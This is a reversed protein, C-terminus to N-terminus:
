RAGLVVLAAALAGIVYTAPDKMAAVLPDDHVEGRRAKLWLRNIFFLVLPCLGWLWHPHRYLRGVEQSSVYLALVLVSLSGSGTGMALVAERDVPRYGRGPLEATAELLETCRKLMALSFFFFMSFTALWESVPIGTALGGAFIRSTYLSALILVDLIERRKLGLSYALTTVFYGGLLWRFDVPLAFSLAVGAGLLLPAMAKAVPVPLAGSAIPRFRKRKHARDSEVDLLDNVVYVSSAVLSFALFALAAEGIARVDRLRHAGLIPLFVLVNKAWQHVRLVKFAAKVLSPRRAAEPAIDGDQRALAPEGM